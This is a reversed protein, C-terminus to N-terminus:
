LKKLDKEEKAIFEDFTSVMYEKKTGKYSKRQKKLDRIVKKKEKILNEKAM